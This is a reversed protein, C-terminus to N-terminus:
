TSCPVCIGTRYWGSITSTSYVQIDGNSKVCLIMIKTSDTQKPITMFTESLANWGSITAITQFDSSANYGSSTFEANFKLFLMGNKKWAYLRGFQTDNMYTTSIVRTITLTELATFSDLRGDVEGIADGTARADAPMGSQRLTADVNIGTGNYVGGDVWESGDHYYWNGYTYGSESGVYVYVRNDDTMDSASSATLPSGYRTRAEVVAAEATSASASAEDAKTSATQASQAAQTGVTAYNAMLTQWQAKTGTYGGAVADGYATVPGLNTIVVAM